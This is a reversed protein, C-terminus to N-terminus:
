RRGQCAATWRSRRFARLQHPLLPSLLLPLPQLSPLLLPQLFPPQSRSHLLFLLRLQSQPRPQLHPQLRLLQM